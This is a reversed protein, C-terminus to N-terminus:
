QAGSIDSSPLLKFIKQLPTSVLNLGKVRVILLQVEYAVTANYFLSSLNLDLRRSMRTLKDTVSM